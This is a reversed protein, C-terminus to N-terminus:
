KILFDYISGIKVFNDVTDNYILDVKYWMDNLKEEERKNDVYRNNIIMNQNKNTQIINYIVAILNLILLWINDVAKFRKENWM